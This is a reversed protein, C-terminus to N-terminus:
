AVTSLYNVYESSLIHTFLGMGTGGVKPSKIVFLNLSLGYSGPVLPSVCVCLLQKVPQTLLSANKIGHVM